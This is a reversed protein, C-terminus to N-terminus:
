TGINIKFQIQKSNHAWFPNLIKDVKTRNPFLHVIDKKLGYGKKHIFIMGITFM